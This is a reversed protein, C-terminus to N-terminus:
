RGLQELWQVGLVLDLGALTLSYLTLTFPIGQLIVWVHEFRGQCKLSSGNAVQVVFPETPIVPLQLIEAMKANLFNHTSGNDILVELEHHCIQAKIRM